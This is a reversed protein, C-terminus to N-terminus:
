SMVWAAFAMGAYSVALCIVLWAVYSAVRMAAADDELEDADHIPGM